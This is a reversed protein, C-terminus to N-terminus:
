RSTSREHPLTGSSPDAPDPLPGPDLTAALSRSAARWRPRFAYVCALRAITGSEYAALTQPGIGARLAVRDIEERAVAAQEETWIGQLERWTAHARLNAVDLAPDGLAITDVDLLGPREGERWLIQKDHLDRHILAPRTPTGLQALDRHAARLARERLPAGAPDVADAREGWATLVAAEADPGHVAPDTGDQGSRRRSSEVAASWADLTERWARRWTGDDVPLGEHLTQGALESFTVTDEDADLVQPTRFVCAFHAARDIAGLLRETRGPRVIKVYRVTGHEDRTRVVARKGPRHSVVSGAREGLVRALGPLRPDTGAEFVTVRGTGAELRGARLPAGDAGGDERLQLPLGRGDDAWARQVRLHQGRHEIRAPVLALDEAGADDGTPRYVTPASTACPVVPLLLREPRELVCEALALRQDVAAPWDEQHKRLPDLAAALLSRATWAALDEATPLSRHRCYGGLFAVAQEQAGHLLCSALWSGLDAGAPGLGSRDLDVVRLPPRERGSTPSEDVRVLVQDPSLDGHILVRPSDTPLARRLREVLDAIRRSQDPLLDAVAETTVPVPGGIRADPAERDAVDAAHLRAIIRGLEAAAPMSLPHSALTSLDGDGWMASVLVCPRDRWRNQDLAPLGLDRWLDVVRQLEDLPRGAVRVVEGRDPLLLVAHRGPNYSLVRPDAGEPQRRLVREIEEGLRSDSDIGGSLLFPSDGPSATLFRPHERVEAQHRAARRLLNDRKDRSAVLQIWGIEALSRGPLPSSEPDSARCSVLVSAGPKIRVRDLTVERGLLRSRRAPDLLHEVGPLRAHASLLALPDGVHRDPHVTTTM